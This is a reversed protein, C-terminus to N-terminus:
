QIGGNSKLRIYSTKVYEDMMGSIYDIILRKQLQKRLKKDGREKDYVPDYQSIM